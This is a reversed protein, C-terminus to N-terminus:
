VQRLAIWKGEGVVAARKKVYDLIDEVSEMEPLPHDFETMAAAPHVHSDILGPIVTRGQLDALQTAAGKTAMAANNAGVVVIRGDRVAIPPAITFAKDVTVVHANYLILAAPSAPDAASTILGCFLLVVLLANLGWRSALDLAGM